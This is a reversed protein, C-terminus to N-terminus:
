YLYVGFAVAVCFLTNNVFTETASKDTTADWLCRCGMRVGAGKNEGIVCQVLFKYRQPQQQQQTSPTLTLHQDCL